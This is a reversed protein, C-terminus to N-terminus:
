LDCFIVDKESLGTKKLFKAKDEASLKGLKELNLKGTNNYEKAANYGESHKGWNIGLFSM